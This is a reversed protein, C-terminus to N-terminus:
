QCGLKDEEGALSTLSLNGSGELSHTGDTVWM